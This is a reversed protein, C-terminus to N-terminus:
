IIIRSNLNKIWKLKLLTDEGLDSINLELDIGIQEARTYVRDYIYYISEPITAKDDSRFKIGVRYNDRSQNLASVFHGLREITVYKSSDQDGLTPIPYTSKRCMPFCFSFEHSGSQARKIIEDTEAKLRNLQSKSTIDRIGVFHRPNPKPM